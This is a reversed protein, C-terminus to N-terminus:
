AAVEEAAPVVARGPHAALWDRVTAAQQPRKRPTDRLFRALWPLCALLHAVTWTGRVAQALTRLSVEAVLWLSVPRAAESPTVTALVAQVRAALREQLAWAVLLARVTAEAGARSTARIAQARLLQKLRKFLLEVQWRARYLRVVDAASWSADLTTLLLWWGTLRLTRASLTKGKKKARKAKKRRAKGRQEPPLASAILRVALRQGRVVVWGHWAALGTRAQELQGLRAEVDFRQGAAGEVPCTRPDIRGVLDGGAARVTLVPGRYGYGGDCVAIDGPRWTFHSLREATHRDSVVVADMRSALLDYSLHVRWDDGGGGIQRLRTADILRIRRGPRVLAPIVAVEAALLEGLLWGLWVRSKGLRARWAAESLDGVGTLVGWAGLGRTSLQDLAFALLARLLATPAALKRVRQFAGLAKAQAALDPPLLPVMEAQWADGTLEAVPAPPPPATRKATSQVPM